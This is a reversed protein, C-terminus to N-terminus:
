IYNTKCFHGFLHFPACEPLSSLPGGGSLTFIAGTLMIQLFFATYFLIATKTFIAGVDVFSNTYLSIDLVKFNLMM